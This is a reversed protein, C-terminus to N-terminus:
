DKGPQVKSRAEPRVTINFNVSYHTHPSQWQRMEVRFKLPDEENETNKKRRLNRQIGM